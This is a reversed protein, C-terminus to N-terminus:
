PLRRTSSSKELIERMWKQSLEDYLIKNRQFKKLRTWASQKSCNCVGGIEAYSLGLQRYYWIKKLNIGKKRNKCNGNIKHKTKM